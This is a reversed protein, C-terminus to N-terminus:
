AQVGGKAAAVAAANACAHCQGGLELTLKATLCKAYGCVLPMASDPGGLRMVAWAAVRVEYQIEEMGRAEHGCPAREAVSAVVLERACDECVANLEFSLQALRERLLQQRREAPWLGMSAATSLLESLM